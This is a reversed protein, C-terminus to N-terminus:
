QYQNRGYEPVDQVGNQWKASLDEGSASINLYPQGMANMQNVDRVAYEVGTGVKGTPAGLGATTSPGSENGSANEVMPIMCSKKYVNDQTEVPGYNRSKVTQEM